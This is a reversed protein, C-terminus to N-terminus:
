TERPEWVLNGFLNTKAYYIQEDKSTWSWQCCPTEPDDSPHCGTILNLSQALVPLVTFLKVMCDHCLNASNVQDWQETTEVDFMSDNFGGYYGGFGSLEIGNNLGNGCSEVPQLTGCGQCYWTSTKSLDKPIPQYPRRIPNSM